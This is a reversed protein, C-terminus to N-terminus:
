FQAVKAIMEETMYARSGKEKVHCQTREQRSIERYGKSSSLLSVSALVLDRRNGRPQFKFGWPLSIVLLGAEGRILVM